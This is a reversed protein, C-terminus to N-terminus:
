GVSDIVTAAPPRVAVQLGRWELFNTEVTMTANAASAKLRGNRPAAPPLSKSVVRGRRKHQGSMHACSRRGHSM